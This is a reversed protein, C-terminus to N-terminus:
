SEEVDSARLSWLDALDRWQSDANVAAFSKRAQPAKNAKLYAIGLDLRAQDADSLDGKEIGRQLAAAAAEYNQSGLYARGLAISPQGTSSRNADKALQSLSSKSAAAREQAFSLMRRFRGENAGAFIGKEFGSQLVRVAAGPMGAEVAGMALEEYDDPDELIGLDFMLRRYENQLAKSGQKDARLALVNKWYSPKPYYRVLAKWTDAIKRDDGTKYYSSLIIQLWAESPQKGQKQVASVLQQMTQAAHAYDGALYKAQGSLELLDPDAHNKTLARDAAAAAQPYQKARLYLQAATKLNGIQQESSAQTSSALEDFIGAADAYKGQQTLVYARFEDLKYEAYPTKDRSQEAKGLAALAANWQKKEALKRAEAILQAIEKNVVAAPQAALAAAAACLCCAGIMAAGTRLLARVRQLM